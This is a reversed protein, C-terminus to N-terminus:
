RPTVTSKIAQVAPLIMDVKTEVRTLRESLENQTRANTRATTRIAEIASAQQLSVSNQAQIDSEMKMFGGVVGVVLLLVQLLMLITAPGAEWKWTITPM